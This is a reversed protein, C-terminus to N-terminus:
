APLQLVAGTKRVVVRTVFPCPFAMRPFGSAVVWDGVAGPVYFPAVVAAEATGGQSSCM